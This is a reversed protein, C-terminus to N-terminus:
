SPKAASVKRPAPVRGIAGQEKAVPLFPSFSAVGTFNESQNMIPPVLCQSTATAGKANKSLVFFPPSVFWPHRPHLVNSGESERRARRALM